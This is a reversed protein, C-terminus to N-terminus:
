SLAPYRAVRTESNNPLIMQTLTTSVKRAKQTAKEEGKNNVQQQQRSRQSQQNILCPLSNDTPECVHKQIQLTQPLIRISGPESPQPCATTSPKCIAASM